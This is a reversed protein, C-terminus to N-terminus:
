QWRQRSSVVQKHKRCESPLGELVRLRLPQSIDRVAKAKTTSMGIDELWQLLLQKRARWEPIELRGLHRDIEGYESEIAKWANQWKTLKEDDSNRMTIALLSDYVRTLYPPQRNRHVDAEELEVLITDLVKTKQTHQSVDKRPDIPPSVEEPREVM